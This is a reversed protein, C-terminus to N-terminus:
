LFVKKICIAANQSYPYYYGKIGKTLTLNLDGKMGVWEWDVKKEQLFDYLAMLESRDSEFYEFNVLEDFVIYCDEALHPACKDLIYKASSYLDSDIHIFSILKTQTKLFEELTDQFLGKILRVNSNVTPMEGHLTFSSKDYKPRWDEPLGEFSDFGYVINETYQSILNITTGKYVGFELWLGQNNKKQLLELVHELPNNGIDPISKVMSLLSELKSM